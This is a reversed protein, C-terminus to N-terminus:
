TTCANGDNCPNSPTPRHVCQGTAPDCSDSTCSNQDDCVTGAGACHGDANCKDDTTCANGDDCPENPTPEFKCQQTAPDCSDKTCPNQDDCVKGVGVCRGDANCKDDTTCAN